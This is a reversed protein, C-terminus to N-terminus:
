FRYGVKLAGQILFENSENHGDAKNIFTGGMGLEGGLYMKSYVNINLSNQWMAGMLFHHQVFETTNLGNLNLLYNSQRGTAIVVSVGAAYKLRGHSGTPYFKVGPMTYLMPNTKGTEYTGTNYDYIRNTNAVNFTIMVPICYAFLGKIDLSREYSVGLGLGNETFQFPMVSVIDPKYKTSRRTSDGQAYSIISLFSFFLCVIIKRM